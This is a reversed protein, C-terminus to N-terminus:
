RGEASGTSDTRQGVRSTPRAMGRRGPTCAVRAREPPTDHPEARFAPAVEFVREFVGVMMQKYFQPSQALYATRGGFAARAAELPERLNSALRSSTETKAKQSQGPLRARLSRLRTLRRSSTIALHSTWVFATPPSRTATCRRVM